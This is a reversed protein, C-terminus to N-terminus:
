DLKLKEEWDLKIGNLFDQENALDIRNITYLKITKQLHKDVFVQLVGIEEGEDITGSLEKLEYKIVIDEKKNKSVPLYFSENAKLNLQGKIDNIYYENYIPQNAM